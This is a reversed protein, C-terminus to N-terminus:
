QNLAKIRLNRMKKHQKVDKTFKYQRLLNISNNTLPLIKVYILTDAAILTSFM